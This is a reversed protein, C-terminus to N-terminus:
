LNVPKSELCECGDYNTIGTWDTTGGYIHEFFNTETLQEGRATPPYDANDWEEVVMGGIKCKTAVVTTSRASGSFWGVNDYGKAEINCYAIAGTIPFTANGIIGGIKTSTPESFTCNRVSIDGLNTLTGEYLGSANSHGSIGGVLAYKIKVNEVLIDGKNAVNSWKSNAIHCGAIGGVQIYGGNSSGTLDKAVIKGENIVDYATLIGGAYDANAIGSARGYYTGGGMHGTLTITGTNKCPTINQSADAAAFTITANGHQTDGVFGSTLVNCKSGSTTKINSTVSGSNLCSTFKLPGYAGGVFGGNRTSSQCKGNALVSGSHTCGTFSILGKQNPVYGIYGGIFLNRSASIMDGTHKVSGSSTCNIFTGTSSGNSSNGIFGAILVNHDNEGAYEVAGSNTCGEFKYRNSMKGIMGGM